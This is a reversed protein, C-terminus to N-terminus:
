LCPLPGGKRLKGQVPLLQCMCVTSPIWPSTESPPPVSQLGGTRRQDVHPKIRQLHDGRNELCFVWLQGKKVQSVTPSKQKNQKMRDQGGRGQEKEPWPDAPPLSGGMAWLFVGWFIGRKTKGNSICEQM